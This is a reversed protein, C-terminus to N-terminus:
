KKKFKAKEIEDITVRGTRLRRDRNRISVQQLFTVVHAPLGNLDQAQTIMVDGITGGGDTLTVMTKVAPDPDTGRFAGLLAAPSLTAASGMGITGGYLDAIYWDEIEAKVTQANNLEELVDAEALKKMHSLVNEEFNPFALKTHEYHTSIKATHDKFQVGRFSNVFDKGNADLNAWVTDATFPKTRLNPGGIAGTFFGYIVMPNKFQKIVLDEIDYVSMKKGGVSLSKKKFAKAMHRKLIKVPYKKIVSEFVVMNRLNLWFALQENPHFNNLAM